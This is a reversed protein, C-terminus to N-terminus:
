IELLHIPLNSTQYLSWWAALITGCPVTSLLTFGTLCFFFPTLSISRSPSQNLGIGHGLFTDTTFFVFLNYWLHLPNLLKLYEKHFHVNPFILTIVNGDHVKKVNVHPTALHRWKHKLLCVQANVYVFYTNNLNNEHLLCRFHCLSIVDTCVLYLNSAAACPTHM